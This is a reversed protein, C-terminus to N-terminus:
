FLEIEGSDMKDQRVPNRNSIKEAHDFAETMEQRVQDIESQSIHVGKNEREALTGIKNWASQMADLRLRSHGLLQGVMDQFQLSTVAGGVV